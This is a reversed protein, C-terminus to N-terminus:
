HVIGVINYKEYDGGQSGWIKSLETEFMTPPLIVMGSIKNLVCSTKEM